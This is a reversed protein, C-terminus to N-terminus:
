AVDEKSSTLLWVLLAADEDDTAAVVRLLAHALERAESVTMRREYPKDREPTIAVIPDGGSVEATMGILISEPGEGVGHIDSWHVEFEAPAPHSTEICWSPCPAVPPNGALLPLAALVGGSIKTKM